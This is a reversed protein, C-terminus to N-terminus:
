VKLIDALQKLATQGAKWDLGLAFIRGSFTNYVSYSRKPAKRAETLIVKVQAKKVEDITDM